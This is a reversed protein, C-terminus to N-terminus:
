QGLRDDQLSGSLDGQLFLMVVSVPRLLFMELGPIIAWMLLSHSTENAPFGGHSDNGLFAKGTRAPRSLRLM